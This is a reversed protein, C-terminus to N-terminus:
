VYNETKIEYCAGHCKPCEDGPDVMSSGRCTPCIVWDNPHSINLVRILTLFFWGVKRGKRQQRHDEVIAKVKKRFVTREEAIKHWLIADSRYQDSDGLYGAFTGCERLFWDEDSEVAM